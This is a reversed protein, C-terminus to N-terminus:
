ILRKAKEYGVLIESVVTWVKLLGDYISIKEEVLEYVNSLFDGEPFGGIICVFDDEKRFVETLDIKRAEPTLAIRRGRCESILQAFNKNEIKLLPSDKPVEKERFLQEILGIFRNYNKPIRTKNNVSIVENNRTHIFIELQNELNAISDLTLILFIHAIDPRGRKSGDKLNELASHHLSSDLIVEGVKKNRAKATNKVSPHNQIEKPILELEADTLILTLM